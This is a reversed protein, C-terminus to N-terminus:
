VVLSKLEIGLKGVNHHQCALKVQILHLLNVLLNQGLVKAARGSLQHAYLHERM